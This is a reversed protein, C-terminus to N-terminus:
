PLNADQVLANGSAGVPMIWRILELRSREAALRVKALNSLVQPGKQGTLWKESALYENPLVMVDYGDRKLEPM